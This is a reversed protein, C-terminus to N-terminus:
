GARLLEYAVGRFMNQLDSFDPDTLNLQFPFISELRSSPGSLIAGGLHLDGPVLLEPRGALGLLSSRQDSCCGAFVAGSCPESEATWIGFAGRSTLHTHTISGLCRAKAHWKRHSRHQDLSLFM